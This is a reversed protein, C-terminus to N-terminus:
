AVRRRRDLWMGHDQLDHLLEDESEITIRRTGTGCTPLDAIRVGHQFGWWQEDRVHPAGSRRLRPAAPLNVLLFGAMVRSEAVVLSGVGLVLAGIVRSRSSAM